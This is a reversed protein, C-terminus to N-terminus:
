RNAGFYRRFWPSQLIRRLEYAIATALQESYAVIIIKEAPNWALLWAALFVTGLLTKLHRPPLNIVIRAGNNRAKELQRCVYSLYRENGLERGNHLYRFCMRAFLEFSGLLVAANNTM